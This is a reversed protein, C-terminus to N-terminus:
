AGKDEKDKSKTSKKKTGKLLKYLSKGLLFVVAAMLVALCSVIIIQLTTM